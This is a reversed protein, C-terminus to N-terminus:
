RLNIANRSAPVATPAGDGEDAIVLDARRGGLTGGHLDLYLQFGDRMDTGISQYSGSLSVLLGVKVSGPDTANGQACGALALMLVATVVTAACREHRHM